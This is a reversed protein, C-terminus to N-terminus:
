LFRRVYERLLDPQLPRLTASSSRCADRVDRSDGGPFCLLIRNLADVLNKQHHVIKTQKKQILPPVISTLLGVELIRVCIQFKQRPLVTNRM